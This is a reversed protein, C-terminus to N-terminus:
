FDQADFHSRSNNPSGVVQIPALHGAQYIPKLAALAPHLAFFGDLDIAAADGAEPLAIGGPVPPRHKYYIWDGRPVLMSLGDAAGRQFICVLIKRGCNNEGEAYAARRIFLPGLGPLVGVSVLALGGRRLFVRRTTKIEGNM